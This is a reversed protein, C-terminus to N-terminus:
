QVRHSRKLVVLVGGGSSGSTNTFRLEDGTITFPRKQTVGDWNPFSSGEIDFNITKATEDISYKGFYSISGQVAAKYEEPRGDLRNGSAFKLRETNAIFLSFHGGSDFMLIGIPKAGYTDFKTGDARTTENKVFSWTGVIDEKSSQAESGTVFLLCGLILIFFAPVRNKM